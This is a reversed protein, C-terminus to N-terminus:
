RHVTASAELSLGSWDPTSLVIPVGGARVTDGAALAEAARDVRLTVLGVGRFSGGAKGIVRDGVTVDAGADVGFGGEYRASVVRTRATGRHQIRSVVEQGVYCGKDFDVGSLRDMMTEHPFSEGFLFDKGGEPVGLALRHALYVDPADQSAAQAEARPLIARFGLALLRSDRTIAAGPIAPADPWAALVGLTSSLDEIFVKARLKYFGLRKALDGAFGAACDLWYGDPREIVIFDFLIKGQPTLLAGFRGRDPTM